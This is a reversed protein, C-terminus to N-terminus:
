REAAWCGGALCRLHTAWAGPGAASLCRCSAVFSSRPILQAQVVVACMCAPYCTFCTLLWVDGGSM